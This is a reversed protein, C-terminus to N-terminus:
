KLVGKFALTGAEGSGVPGAVLWRVHTIDESGARVWQGDDTQVMVAQRPAFSQGGDASYTVVSGSKDATGEMFEVQQPIPMTLVLDTAADDADNVYNLSYVVREGPVVSAAEVRKLTETGDDNTVVIEKEVTQTATLASAPLSFGFLAATLATIYLQRM